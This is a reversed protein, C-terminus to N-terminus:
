LLKSVGLLLSKRYREIKAKVLYQCPLQKPFIFDFHYRSQSCQPSRCKLISIIEANLADAKSLSSIFQEFKPHKPGCFAPLACGLRVGLYASCAV